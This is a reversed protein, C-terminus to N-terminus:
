FAAKQLVYKFFMYQINAILFLIIAQFHLKMIFLLLFCDSLLLHWCLYDMVQSQITVFDRLYIM